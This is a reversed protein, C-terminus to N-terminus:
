YSSRQTQFNYMKTNKHVGLVDVPNTTYSTYFEVQQIRQSHKIQTIILNWKIEGRGWKKFLVDDHNLFM